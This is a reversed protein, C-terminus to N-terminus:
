RVRLKYLYTCINHKQVLYMYISFDPDHLLLIKKIM